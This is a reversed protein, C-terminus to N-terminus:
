SIQVWIIKKKKYEADMQYEKIEKNFQKAFLIGYDVTNTVVDIYKYYDFINEMNYPYIIVITKDTEKCYKEIKNVINNRNTTIITGSGRPLIKSIDYDGIDCYSDVLITM